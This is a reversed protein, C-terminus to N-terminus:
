DWQFKYSFDKILIMLFRVFGFEMFNGQGTSVLPTNFSPNAQPTPAPSNILSGQIVGNVNTGVNAVSNVVNTDIRQGNKAIDFSVSKSRYSRSGPKMLIPKIVKAPTVSSISRSREVRKAPQINKNQNLERVRESRRIGDPIQEFYITLIKWIM